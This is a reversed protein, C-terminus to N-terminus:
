KSPIIHGLRLSSAVVEDGRNGIYYESGKPIVAEYVIRDSMGAATRIAYAVQTYAHYGAFVEVYCHRSGLRTVIKKLKVKPTATKLPYVYEFCLARRSRTLVKYVVMDKTAVNPKLAAAQKFTYKMSNDKGYLTLCM